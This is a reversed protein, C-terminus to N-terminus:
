KAKNNKKVFAMMEDWKKKFEDFPVNYGNAVTSWYRTNAANAVAEKIEADTAGYMKAQTTHAYVCFSCPIQSAVGLSILQAYKAPIAANPNGNNKYLEWGSAVLHDPLGKFIGPVAGFAAIMEAEAKKIADTHSEQASLSTSLIFVAFSVTIASRTLRMLRNM